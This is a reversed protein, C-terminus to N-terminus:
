ENSETEFDVVMLKPREAPAKSLVTPWRGSWGDVYGKVSVVKRGDAMAKQLEDFKSKEDEPKAVVDDKLVFQRDMGSVNLVTEDKNTTVEGVATVQLHVVGSSTGGSLRTAWVSEHLQQLDILRNKKARFTITAQDYKKTLQLRKFVVSQDEVDYLRATADRAM